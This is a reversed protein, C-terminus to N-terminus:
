IIKLVESQVQRAQGTIIIIHAVMTVVVKRVILVNVFTENLNREIKNEILTM